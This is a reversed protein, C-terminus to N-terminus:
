VDIEDYDGKFTFNCPICKYANLGVNFLSYTETGNCKPCVVKSVTINVKRYKVM